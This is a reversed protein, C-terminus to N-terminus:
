QVGIFCGTRSEGLSVKVAHNILHRRCINISSTQFSHDDLGQESSMSSEGVSSDTYSEGNTSIFCEDIEYFVAPDGISTLYHSTTSHDYHTDPGLLEAYVMTRLEYPLTAQMEDCLLCTQPKSVAKIYCDSLKKAFVRQNFPKRLIMYSTLRLKRCYYVPNTGQLTNRTLKSLLHLRRRRLCTQRKDKPSRNSTRGIKAKLASANQWGVPM